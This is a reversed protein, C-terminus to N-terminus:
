PAQVHDAPEWTNNSEPYGKWKILYQLQKRRGQCQHSRITKVEYQERNDILDPQPRSYNERHEKTKTYRTLLSTHFVPHITWQPPLCLQYAVPSLVKEIKFPGHRRPALKITGYPLALNKTDLWVEQGKKWRAETPKQHNAAQNLAQTALIQWERLQHVRQEALPNNTGEVQSPTAPPERGILLQNPSTRITANKSNNHVLTALPLMTSWEEQNSAVLQLFQEVWQNKQESLGDTQPHYTTSLNWTIGLEKALSKGFHSTFCPDRNSIIQTPLGFWPYVHQYYLQAIQPGTIM